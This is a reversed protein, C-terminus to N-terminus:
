CASRYGHTSMSSIIALRREELFDHIMKDDLRGSKCAEGFRSIRMIRDAQSETVKRRLKKRTIREKIKKGPKAKAITNRM